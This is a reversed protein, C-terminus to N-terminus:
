YLEPKINFWEIVKKLCYEKINKNGAVKRIILDSITLKGLETPLIFWIPNGRAQPLGLKSTEASGNWRIGIVNEDEWKGFAVSFGGEGEDYVVCVLHWKDKPAKVEDPPIYNM